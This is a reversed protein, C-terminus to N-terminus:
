RRYSNPGEWRRMCCAAWVAAPELRNRVASRQRGARPQRGLLQDVNLQVQKTRRHLHQAFPANLITVHHVHCSPSRRRTGSLRLAPNRRLRRRAALPRSSRCPGSAGREAAATATADNIRTRYHKKSDITYNSRNGSSKKSQRQMTAMLVFVPHHRSRNQDKSQKTQWWGTTCM